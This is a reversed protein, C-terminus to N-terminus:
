RWRTTPSTRRPPCRPRGRLRGRPRRAMDRYRRRDPQRGHVPRLRRVRAPAALRARASARPRRLGGGLPEEDAPDPDARRKRLGLRDLEDLLPEYFAAETSPDGERRASTASRRSSSGTSCRCRSPSCSGADRAALARARPGAGRVASRAPDVNGGLPNDIVFVAVALLAYLVAGIRLARYERRSWGCSSRRSCRSRSSPASCSRSWRRRDPVRPQAGRDPGARRAAPRTGRTRADRRACIAAGALAMFLGAVPSALSACAPSCCGRAGALPRAGAPRRPRVPGRAPVPGARHGALDGGRRRVVAVPRAGRRRVPPPRPARVSGRGRRRRAGGVLRPGLWAGLPPYLVSYSLLYHGSYWANNWIAFGHDSFLDASFTAAALDQSSPAWILYVAALAAALLTSALVTPRTPRAQLRRLRARHM